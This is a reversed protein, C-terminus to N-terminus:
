SDEERDLPAYSAGSTSSEGLRGNKRAVLRALVIVVASFAAASVLAIPLAWWGIGLWQQVIVIIKVSNTGYVYKASAPAGPASFLFPRGSFYGTRNGSEIYVSYTAFEATTQLIAITNNLTLNGNIFAHYVQTFLWDPPFLMHGTADAFLVSGNILALPFQTYGLTSNSQILFNTLVFGSDPLIVSANSSAMITTNLQDIPTTFRIYGGFLQVTQFAPTAALSVAGSCNTLSVVSASSEPQISFALTLAVNNGQLSILDILRAAALGGFDGGVVSIQSVRHSGSSIFTTAYNQSLYAIHTEGALVSTGWLFTNFEGTVALSTLDRDMKFYCDKVTVNTAAVSGNRVDFLSKVALNITSAQVSGGELIYFSSREVNLTSSVNLRGSLYLGLQYALTINSPVVVSLSRVSVDLSPPISISYDAYTNPAPSVSSWDIIVEDSPGLVFLYTFVLWLIESSESSFM